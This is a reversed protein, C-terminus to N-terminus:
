YGIDSSIAAPERDSPSTGTGSLFRAAVDDFILIFM